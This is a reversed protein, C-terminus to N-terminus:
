AKNILNAMLLGDQLASFIDESNEDIPVVDKLEEENKFLDNIVKVYCLKEESPYSHTFGSESVSQVVEGSKTQLVKQFMDNQTTKWGKFMQLYEEWDLVGDENMDFEKFKETVQEETIDKRGMDHLIKKFEDFHITGDKNSDYFKFSQIMETIEQPTFVKKMEFSINFEKTEEKVEPTETPEVM